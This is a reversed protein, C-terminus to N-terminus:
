NARVTGHQHLFFSYKSIFQIPTSIGPMSVPPPANAEGSESRRECVEPFHLEHLFGSRLLRDDHSRCWFEADIDIYM